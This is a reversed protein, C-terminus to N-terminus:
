ASKKAIRRLLVGAAAAVLLMLENASSIPEDTAPVSAGTPEGTSPIATIRTLPPAISRNPTGATQSPENAPAEAEHSLTQIM